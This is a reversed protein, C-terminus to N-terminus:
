SISSGERTSSRQRSSYPSLPIKLFGTNESIDPSRKITSNLMTEQQFQSGLLKGPGLTRARKKEYSENEM